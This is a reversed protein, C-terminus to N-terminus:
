GYFTVVLDLKSVYHYCVNCPELHVIVDVDNIRKTLTAYTLKPCVESAGTRRFYVFNHLTNNFM